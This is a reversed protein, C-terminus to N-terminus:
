NGFLLIQCGKINITKPLQHMFQVCKIRYEWERLHAMKKVGVFSSFCCWTYLISLQPKTKTTTKNEQWFRICLLCCQTSITYNIQKMKQMSQTENSTHAQRCRERGRETKLQIYRHTQTHYKSTEVDFCTLFTNWMYRINSCCCFWCYSSFFLVSQSSNLTFGIRELWAFIRNTEGNDDNVVTDSYKWYNTREDMGNCVNSVNWM